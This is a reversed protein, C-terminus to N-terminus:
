YIKNSLYFAKYFNKIKQEHNEIVINLIKNNIKNLKDLLDLMIYKNYFKYNYSNIKLHADCTLVINLIKVKNKNLYIDIFKNIKTYTLNKYKYNLIKLTSIFKKYKKSLVLWEIISNEKKKFYCHETNIIIIALKILKNNSYENIKKIIKIINNWKNLKKNFKFKKSFNIISNLHSFIYKLKKCIKLTNFFIFSNEFKLSTFLEKTIREITLKKIEKRHINIILNYTESALTFGNISFKSLLRSIRLIRLPDELFAKSIHRIKKNKIDNISEFYNLIIGKKNIILSNITIDRRFLDDKLKIKSFFYCKFGTYGHSIKKEKRALAYEEKTIPHLFVPFDKGVLKFGLKIITKYNSNLIIWDKENVNLSLIKDRILGGVLFIKYM